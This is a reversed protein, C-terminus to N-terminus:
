HQRGELLYQGALGGRFLGDILHDGVQLRLDPLVFPDQARLGSDQSSTGRADGAARRQRRAPGGHGKM